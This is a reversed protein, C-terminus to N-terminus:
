GQDGLDIPHNIMAVDHRNDDDSHHNQIVDVCRRNRDVKVAVDSLRSPRADNPRAFRRNQTVDVVILRGLDVVNAWRHTAGSPHNPNRRRSPTWKANQHFPRSLIPAIAATVARVAAQRRRRRGRVNRTTPWRWIKIQLIIRKWFNAYFIFVFCTRTPLTEFTAHLRRAGRVCYTWTLKMLRHFFNPNEVSSRYLFEEM